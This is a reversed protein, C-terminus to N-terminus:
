LFNTRAFEDFLERAAADYVKAAEIESDFRGLYTNKNNMTIQVRWKSINKAWYVGKFKSSFHIYKQIKYNMQNQQHSCFRLNGRQNDLGDGNRHDIEQGKQANMIVRHMRLLHSKNDYWNQRIAYWNNGGKITCWKWQNLWEFDNNDVIAFKGKTLPIRKMKSDQFILRLRNSCDFGYPSLYVSSRSFM